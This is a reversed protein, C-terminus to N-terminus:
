VYCTNIQVPIVKKLNITLLLFVSLRTVTQGKYRDNISFHIYM